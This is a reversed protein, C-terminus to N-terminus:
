SKNHSNDDALAREHSTPQPRADAVKTHAPKHALRNELRLREIPDPDPCPDTRYKGDGERIGSLRALKDKLPNGGGRFPTIPKKEVSM